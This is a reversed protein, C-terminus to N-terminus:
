RAQDDNLLGLESLYFKELKKAIAEHSFNDRVRNYANEIIQERKQEPMEAVNIMAKALTKEDGPAM